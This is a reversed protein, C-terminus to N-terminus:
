WLRLQTDSPLSERGARIQEETFDGSQKVSGDITEAFKQLEKYNDHNVGYKDVLHTPRVKTNLRITTEPYTQLAKLCYFVDETHNTGTMFYPPELKRLLSMKMLCCSFGVASVDIIHNGAKELDEETLHPLSGDEQLKFAMKDFPYGRIYVLGAAIDADCDMLATISDNPILVDDDYFFLYDAEWELAAKATFNRMNDISMRRPSSFRFSFDTNRGQNYWFQMHNPYAISDVQTLLNCGVMVKTM